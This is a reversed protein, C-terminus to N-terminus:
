LILSYVIADEDPHEYYRTRVSVQKFTFRQYLSRAAANSERVELLINVPSESRARDLMEKLLLSGYGRRRHDSAVVINEIEWDGPLIRAVLFGTVGNEDAVLAVRAAAGTFIQQYANVSWHSAEPSAREMAIMASIDDITASRINM